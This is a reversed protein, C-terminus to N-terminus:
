SVVVHGTRSCWRDWPSVHPAMDKIVVMFINGDQAGRCDSGGYQTLYLCFCRFTVGQSHIRHSRLLVTRAQRAVSVSRIAGDEERDINKTLAERNDYLFVWHPAPIGIVYVVVM